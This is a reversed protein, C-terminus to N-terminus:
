DRICRVSAGLTKGYNQRVAEGNGRDLSISWASGSDYETSSWWCGIQSISMFSGSYDRIGGPLATFGSSNDAGQNLPLWHKTGAEKMKNGATANGGLFTTLTTWEADSPIHWGKPALKGSNVVYWNYVPGYTMKNASENNYSCYGATGSYLVYNWTASDAIQPIATGDNYRTTRLNEVMWVQTGITVAHYVNGDIDTINAPTEESKKCGSLLLCIVVPILVYIGTKTLKKM